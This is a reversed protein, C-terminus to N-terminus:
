RLPTAPRQHRVRFNVAPTFCLGAQPLTAVPALTTTSGTAIPRGYDNVITSGLHYSDRLPTGSIGRMVSYASEFHSDNGNPSCPGQSDSHLERILAQYIGQAEDAAPGTADPDQIRSSANDLMHDISSRTWPRMGLYVTDIFGLSYLRLVAPYVWSDVPIYPSDLRSPECDSLPTSPVQSGIAAGQVAGPEEAALPQTGVLTAISVFFVACCIAPFEVSIRNM